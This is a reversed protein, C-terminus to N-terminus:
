KKGPKILPSTESMTVRYPLSLSVTNSTQLGRSFINNRKSCRKYIFHLVLCLPYLFPIPCLLYLIPRDALEVLLTNFSQIDWFSTFIGVLLTVFFTDLKTHITNKHPSFGSLLIIIVLQTTIIGSNTFFILTFCMCIYTVARSILFIASFFRCDRSGDTGNNFPGQFIDIFVNISHRQLHCRNLCQQFWYCPYLCLFLIPFFTFVLLITLALAAYPLHDRGFYQLSGDYYVVISRKAHLSDWLISPVLIDVSVSMFKVYSLLLFSAFADILSNQINWQRRLHRFCRIFPYSMWVILKSNRYHLRVLTYTFAILFLPYVAIIYDLSLVQLTSTNPHLCFPKYLLRFFDLNWISLLSAYGKIFIGYLKRQPSQVAYLHRLVLPSTLIQCLFIYGNLYPATVRFRFALVAIYFLTTPLLSVALYKGWNNTGSPCKVCEMDYSYIPPATGNTCKGCMQGARNITGCMFKEVESRNKPLSNYSWLVTHSKNKHYYPCAGVVDNMLDKNVTLCFGFLISVNETANRCFVTHYIDEGCVCNGTQSNYHTWTPCSRNGNSRQQHCAWTNQSSFALIVLVSLYISM